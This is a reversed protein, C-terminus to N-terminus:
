SRELLLRARLLEKLEKASNEVVFHFEEETKSLKRLTPISVLFYHQAGLMHYIFLLPSVNRFIGRRQGSEVLQTLLNLMPVIVWNEAKDVREQNDLLERMMLIPADPDFKSWSSLYDIIRDFQELETGGEDVVSRVGRYLVQAIRELVAAYLKEKAKFHHLLAQKTLGVQEAIQRISTGYFGNKAFLHLAADLLKEKTTKNM